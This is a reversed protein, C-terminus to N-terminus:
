LHLFTLTKKWIKKKYSLWLYMKKLRLVKIKQQVNINFDHKALMIDSFPLIRVPDAGRVLPDPDELGLFM